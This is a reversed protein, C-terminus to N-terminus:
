ISAKTLSCTSVQSSAHAAVKGCKGKNKVPTVEKKNFPPVLNDEELEKKSEIVELTSSILNNYLIKEVEPMTWSLLGLVLWWGGLIRTSVKCTAYEYVCLSQLQRRDLKSPFHALM